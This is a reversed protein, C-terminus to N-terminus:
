SARGPASRGVLRHLLGLAGVAAAADQGHGAAARVLEDCASAAFGHLELHGLDDESALVVLESMKEWRDLGALVDQNHDLVSLLRAHDTLGLTGILTLRVVTREKAGLGDFWRALRDVDSSGALEHRHEEFRWTGVPHRTVRCRTGGPESGGPKGGDREDLEVVLAMGPEVEVFDTPEPAGSYWIRGTSGVSTTSHRDGLAVYHVVDADIAAHLVDTAIRTPDHRDPSLVDVAGHGLLIRQTGDPRLGRCADAVLDRGPRKSAWPAGVVEVGPAVAVPEDDAIVRVHDPRHTTFTPSAYVSAADLPDHNGPLLLVPVPIEAMAELSRVVVQRDLHNSEFVDGCVVVFDCRETEALVGIRRVVEIRAATFRAQADSDLFHRTMGLQWDATHVFRVM